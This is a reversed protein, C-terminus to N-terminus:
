RNMRKNRTRDRKDCYRQYAKFDVIRGIMYEYGGYQNEDGTRYILKVGPPVELRANDAIWSRVPKEPKILNKSHSWCRAGQPQEKYTKMLYECTDRFVDDAGDLRRATFAGATWCKNLAPFDLPQGNGDFGLANIILHVHLRVGIGERDHEEIVWLYKLEKGHRRYEKRMDRLFKDLLRKLMERTPPDGAVDLGLFWDRGAKFNLCVYRMMTFVAQRKNIERKSEATKKKKKERVKPPDNPMISHTYTYGEYLMGSAQEKKIKSM